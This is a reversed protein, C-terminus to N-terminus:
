FSLTTQYVYILASGATGDAPPCILLNIEGPDIPPQFARQGGSTIICRYVTGSQEGLAYEGPLVPNPQNAPFTAITPVFADGPTRIGPVESAPASFLQETAGKHFILLYLDISRGEGIQTSPKRVLATWFCTCQAPHPAPFPSSSGFQYARENAPIDTFGPLAVLTSLAQSSANALANSGDGSQSYRRQIISLASHAVSQAITEHTSQRTWNGGVPLIAAIMLLGIGLIMMAILVEILSFARSRYPLPHSMGM